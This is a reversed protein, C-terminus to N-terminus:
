TNNTWWVSILVSSHALNQEPYPFIATLLVFFSGIKLSNVNHPPLYVFFYVSFLKLIHFISQFLCSSTSWLLLWSSLWEWISNSICASHDSYTPHPVFMKPLTFLLHLPGSTHWSCPLINLPSHIINQMQFTIITVIWLILDFSYGIMSYVCLLHSTKGWSNVFIPKM